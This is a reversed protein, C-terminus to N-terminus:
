LVDWRNVTLSRFSGINILISAAEYGLRTSNVCRWVIFAKGRSSSWLSGYKVDRKIKFSYERCCGWSWVVGLGNKFANLSVSRSASSFDRGM